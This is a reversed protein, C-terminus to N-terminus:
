AVRRRYTRGTRRIFWIARVPHVVNFADGAGTLGTRSVEKFSLSGTRNITGDDPTIGTAITRGGAADTAPHDHIPLEAITQVHKEEGVNDGINVITGSALTGPHIPSRAAMATVEEWFPGTINTVAAVEGGDYTAIDVQAGEYMCVLGVPIPHKQVWFGNYFVWMGDDTGDTNVRFWPKTRNAATPTSSSFNVENGSFVAKLYTALIPWDTQPDHYCLGQPITGSQIPLLTESM